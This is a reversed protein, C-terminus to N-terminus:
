LLHIKLLNKKFENEFKDVMPGQGVWRGYLKNKVNNPTKKSIYPYFLLVSKKKDPMIPLEKFSM